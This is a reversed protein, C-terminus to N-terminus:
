SVALNDCIGGAIKALMDASCPVVVVLDAWRRLEIHLIPDGIKNWDSWEDRDAWIGVGDHASELADRDYFYLSSDTAVVQVEVNDDAALAELINPMKISAVSGTSVLVVRLKGDPMAPLHDDAAFPKSRISPTNAKDKGKDVAKPKPESKSSDQTKPLLTSAKSSSALPLGSASLGAAQLAEEEAKKM